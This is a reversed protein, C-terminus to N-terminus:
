GRTSGDRGVTYRCYVASAYRVLWTILGHSDPLAKGLRTELADKLTRVLGKLLRVGMEAAGNTRPDGESSTELVVECTVRQQVARLLALLAPENDSRFCVRRYGLADVEKALLNVVPEAGEFDVGKAPLVYASFGKSRRDWRVLAPSSRAQEAAEEEAAAEDGPSGRSCLYCYDWSLVPVADEQPGELHRDDRGRGRVCHPCWSRFVAHGTLRHDEVEMESPDTPSVARRPLRGEEEPEEPGEGGAEGHEEPAEDAVAEPLALPGPPEDALPSLTM